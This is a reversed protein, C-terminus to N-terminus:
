LIVNKEHYYLVGDIQFSIKAKWLGKKMGKMSIFQTGNAELKLSFLKDNESKSPRFLQIEGKILKDANNPFSVELVRTVTNLKFTPKDVLKKFNSIKDIQEQYAIEQRYYDEAVLNVDERMSIAAMTFIIAAFLIFSIIIYHGWHLKM